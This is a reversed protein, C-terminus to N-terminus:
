AGGASLRKRRKGLALAIGVMALGIAGGPVASAHREFYLDEDVKPPFETLFSECVLGNPLAGPGLGIAEALDYTVHSPVEARWEPWGLARGAAGVPSYDGTSVFYLRLKGTSGQKNDEPVSFPNYPRDTKFSLRVPGTTNGTVRFATVYWGRKVYGDLWAAIGPTTRYGNTRMWGALAAGDGAKLVTARYGAVQKTEVVEVSDTAAAPSTMEGGKTAESPLQGLRELMSFAEGKAEGLDPRSPTPALFGLNRVSPDFKADRVFHEVGSAGDWVLINTQGEMRVPDDTGVACCPWATASTLLALPAFRRM